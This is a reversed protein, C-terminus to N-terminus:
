WLRLGKSSSCCSHAWNPGNGDASAASVIVIMKWERVSEERVSVKKNHALDSDSQAPEEMGVASLCELEVNMMRDNQHISMQTQCESQAHYQPEEASEGGISDAVAAQVCGLEVRRKGDNKHCENQHREPCLSRVVAASSHGIRDNVAIVNRMLQSECKTETM